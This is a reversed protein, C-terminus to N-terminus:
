SESIFSAYPKCKDQSSLWATSFGTEGLIRIFSCENYQYEAHVSDARTLLYPLCAETFTQESFIHPFSVVNTREALLPTTAREYGNLQLHDARTAEGLVFVVTLSDAMDKVEYKPVIRTEAAGHFSVFYSHTHYGINCPFRQVLVISTLPYSANVYGTFLLLSVAMHAWSRHLNIKTWRWWILVGCLVLNLVVWVILQWSIVGMAEEPNTHMTVDIIMPTFTIHYGVRYFALASGLLAWVPLLIATVYRNAGIIYLLLLAAISCAGIFGLVTCLSRLSDIPNDIFDPAIFCVATWLTAVLVWLVYTWWGKRRM